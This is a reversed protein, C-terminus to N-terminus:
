EEDASIGHAEAAAELQDGYKEWLREEMAAQATRQVDAYGTEDQCTRDATALAIEKERLADLAAQDPEPPAEGEAPPEADFGMVANYEEFISNQADQPTAFDYGAEGVCRAWETTAERVREDDALSEFERNMEDMAERLGPDEWIQMAGSAEHSAAGTCGQETWDPVEAEAEPDLTEETMEGYLATWYAQQETESMASVYDQNPDVWEEGDGSGWLEDGTTAGYGYTKAFELTDWAPVDGEGPVPGMDMPEAPTYEFGQEAMCEAVLEEIRRQQAKGDESDMSGGVREFFATLPGTETDSPATGGDGDGGTCGALLLAVAGALAGVSATINSRM